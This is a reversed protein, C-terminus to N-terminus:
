VVGPCVHTYCVITGITSPDQIDCGSDCRQLTSSAGGSVCLLFLMKLKEDEVEFFIGFISVIFMLWIPRQAKTSKSTLLPYKFGIEEKTNSCLCSVVTSIYLYAIFVGFYIPVVFCYAQFWILTIFILSIHLLCDLVFYSITHTFLAHFDMLVM